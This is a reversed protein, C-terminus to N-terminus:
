TAGEADVAGRGANTVIAFVGKTPRSPPSYLTLRTNQFDSYKKLLPNVSPDFFRAPSKGTPYDCRAGSFGSGLHIRFYRNANSLFLIIIGDFGNFARCAICSFALPIDLSEPSPSLEPAEGQLWRNGTQSKELAMTMAIRKLLQLPWRVIVEVAIYGAM